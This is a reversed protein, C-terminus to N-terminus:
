IGITSHERAPCARGTFTRAPRARASASTARTLRPFRSRTHLGFVAADHKLTNHITAHIETGEPVRILPGPNQPAKGTEAFVSVLLAPGAEDEIHIPGKTIDLKLELVGNAVTGAPTRNDNAMVKPPQDQARAVVLTGAVLLTLALAPKMAPIM